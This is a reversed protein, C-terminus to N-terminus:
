KLAEELKGLRDSLQDVIGLKGAILDIKESLANFDPPPPPDDKTIRFRQMTTKVANENTILYWVFPGTDDMVIESSSPGLLVQSAGEEGHVTKAQTRPVLMPNMGPNFPSQNQQGNM